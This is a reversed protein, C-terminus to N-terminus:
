SVEGMCILMVANDDVFGLDLHIWNSQGSGNKRDDNIAGFGGFFHVLHTHPTLIRRLAFQIALSMRHNWIESDPPSTEAM